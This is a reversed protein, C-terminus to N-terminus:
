RPRQRRCTPTRRSSGWRRCGTDIRSSTPARFDTTQGRTSRGDGNSRHRHLRVGDRGTDNMNSLVAAVRVVRPKLRCKEAGALEDVPIAPARQSALRSGLVVASGRCATPFGDPAPLRSTRNGNIPIARRSGTRTLARELPKQKAIGTEDTRRDKWAPPVRPRVRTLLRPTPNRSFPKPRGSSNAATRARRAGARPHDNSKLRRGPM